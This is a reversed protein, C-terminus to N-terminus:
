DDVSVGELLEDFESFYASDAKILQAPNNEIDKELFSLFAMMMPDNEDDLQESTNTHDGAIVLMANNSLVKATAGQTLDPLLDVLGKKLRLANANGSKFSAMNFTLKDSASKMIISARNM